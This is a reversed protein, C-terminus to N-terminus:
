RAQTGGSTVPVMPAGGGAVVDAPTEGVPLPRPAPGAQMWATDGPHTGEPLTTQPKGAAMRVSVNAPEGPMLPRYPVAANMGPVGQVVSGWPLPTYPKGAAMREPESLKNGDTSVLAGNRDRWTPIPILAGGERPREAGPPADPVAAPAPTAAPSQDTNPGSQALAPLALLGLTAALAMPNRM